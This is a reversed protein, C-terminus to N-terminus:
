LAQFDFAHILELASFSRKLSFSTKGGFPWAVNVPYKGFCFKFQTSTSM